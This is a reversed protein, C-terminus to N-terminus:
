LQLFYRGMTHIGRLLRLGTMFVYSKDVDRNEVSKEFTKDKKWFELVAKEYELARRREGAKYKM